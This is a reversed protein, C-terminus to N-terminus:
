SGPEENWVWAAGGAGYPGHRQRVASWKGRLGPEAGAGGAHQGAAAQLGAAGGSVGGGDARQRGSLGGRYGLLQGWLCLDPRGEALCGAAGWCSCLSWPEGGAGCGLGEVSGYTVSGMLSQRLRGDDCGTRSGSCSGILM